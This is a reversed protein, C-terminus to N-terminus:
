LLVVCASLNTRSTVRTMERGRGNLLRDVAREQGYQEYLFISWWADRDAMEYQVLWDHLYDANYPHEPDVALTLLVDLFEDFLGVSQFCHDAVDMTDDTIARPDRWLISQIMAQCTFWDNELEPVLSVLERGTREPVQVSLAEVLGASQSVWWRGRELVAKRLPTDAQFAEEPDDTLHRELLHRAVLHDSLRQYAFRVGETPAGKVTRFVDRTLLGESLLHYFLSDTYGSFPLCANVIREGEAIPAM